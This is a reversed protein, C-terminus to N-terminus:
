NTTTGPPFQRLLDWIKKEYDTGRIDLPIKPDRDPPDVLRALSAISGAMGVPHETLVVDPFRAQLAKVENGDPSTFEFAVLGRESRDAIFDGLSSEGWAYVLGDFQILDCM